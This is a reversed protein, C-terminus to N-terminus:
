YSSYFDKPLAHFSRFLSYFHKLLSNFNTYYEYINIALKENNTKINEKNQNYAEITENLNKAFKEKINLALETKQLLLKHKEPPLPAELELHNISELCNALDLQIETSIYYLFLEVVKRYLPTEILKELIEKLTEIKNTDYNLSSYIVRKLSIRVDDSIRDYASLNFTELFDFQTKAINAAIQKDEQNKEAELLEGFKKLKSLVEDEQSKQDQSELKLTEKDKDQSESSSYNILGQSDPSLSKQDKSKNNSAEQEKSEQNTNKINISKNGFNQTSEKLDTHSKVKPTTKNVDCSICILALIATIINLKNITNLKTKKM